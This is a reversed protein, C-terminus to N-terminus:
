NVNKVVLPSTEQSDPVDQGAITPMNVRVTTGNAGTNTYVLSFTADDGEVVTWSNGGNDTADGSTKALTPAGVTGTGTVTDVAQLDALTVNVNGEEANVTFELEVGAGGELPTWSVGSLTAVSLSLTKTGGTVTSTDTVTNAGEGEVSVTAVTVTTSGATYNGTSQTFRMKVVVDVMDDADITFDGDIDFTLTATTTGPNTVVFDDFEEGDIEITVDDVVQNYIDNTTVTLVLEELDIENEEAELRFKFVDYWDSRDTDEVLLTEDDNMSDSSASSINLEEDGGEEEFGFDEELAAGGTGTFGEGDSFRISDTKLAVRWDEDRDATDISNNAMLALVFEPEDGDSFVLDLGSFRLRYEDDDTGGNTVLNYDEQDWDDVDLEAVEKGDVMLIASTFYDDADESGAASSVVEMYFDVRDVLVDGEIEAEFAFIEGIAGEEVDSDASSVRNVDNIDGEDGGLPGSTTTTTTTTTTTNSCKVGTTSSYGSTSSCGAPLSSSSGSDCRVGTTSSYGSTSTCGAPLTYSVACSMGTTTSFGGNSTCGAPFNAPITIVAVSAAALAHGTLPGVVGDAVLGKSMQFQKVALATAPGFKGDVVITTRLAQNLAAQLTSIGPGSMGVKMVGSYTFGSAVVTTTSSSSTTTTTQASAVAAVSLMMAIAIILGGVKFTKSKLLNSM